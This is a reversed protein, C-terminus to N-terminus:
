QTFGGNTQHKEAQAGTAAENISQTGQGTHGTTWITPIKPYRVLPVEM